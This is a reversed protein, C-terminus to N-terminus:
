IDSITFLKEFFNIKFLSVAQEMTSPLPILNYQKDYANGYIKAFNNLTQVDKARLLISYLITTMALYPDVNPSSLRHELRLPLSNPIRVAVTRNNGGYCVHTPALYGAVNRLYDEPKPMFVYYTDLMHHCISAAAMTLVDINGISLNFHISNGYDDIFPKASFDATGGLTKAANKIKLKLKSIKSAYNTLDDSPALAIEYQNHGREQKINESILNELEKYNINDSLYFELEIGFKPLTGYYTTVIKSLRDLQNNKFLSDSIKTLINIPPM